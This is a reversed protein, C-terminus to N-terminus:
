ENQGGKPRDDLEQHHKHFYMLALAHFVVSSLHACKTEEDAYEGQWFQNAHRQLSAYSLSWDYGRMWNNPSYKTSGFGYLEAVEWLEESPILDFRAQKSGKEGGTKENKIREEKMM